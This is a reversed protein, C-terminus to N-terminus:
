RLNKCSMFCNTMSLSDGIKLQCLLNYNYDDNLM